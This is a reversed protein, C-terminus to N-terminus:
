KGARIEGDIAGIREAGLTMVQALNEGIATEALMRAMNIIAERTRGAVRSM